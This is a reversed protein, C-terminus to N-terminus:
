LPRVGRVGIAERGGGTVDRGLVAGRGRPVEYGIQVGISVDALSILPLNFTQNQYRFHCPLFLFELM